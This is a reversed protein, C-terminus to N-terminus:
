SMDESNTESRAAVSDRVRTTAALHLWGLTMGDNQRCKLIHSGHRYSDWNRAAQSQSFIHYMSLQHQIMMKDILIETKPYVM